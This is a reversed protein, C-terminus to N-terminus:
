TNSVLALGPVRDALGPKQTMVYTLNQRALRAHERTLAEARSGERALIAEFIERHQLQARKLSQRFDPLVEQGQLFASPSAVPLRSARRVERAVIPSNAMDAILNHFAANLEVYDAFAEVSMDSVARDLAALIDKGRTRMHDSIGREAALRAATGELVGRLEIADAIDAFSFSAVRCGGTPIKELLGETVLQDMAQRIPTRSIGLQAALGIERLREGADYEGGLIRSRLEALARAFQTSSERGSM